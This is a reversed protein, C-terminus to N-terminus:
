TSTSVKVGNPKPVKMVESTEDARMDDDEKSATKGGVDYARRGDDPMISTGLSVSVLIVVM